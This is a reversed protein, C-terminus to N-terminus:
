KKVVLIKVITEIILYLPVALLAGTIGALQAGTAILLITILPNLGITEKM